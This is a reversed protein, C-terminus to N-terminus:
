PRLVLTQDEPKKDRLQKNRFLVERLIKAVDEVLENVRRLVAEWENDRIEWTRYRYRADGLYTLSEGWYRDLHEGLLRVNDDRYFPHIHTSEESDSPLLVEVTAVPLGDVAYRIRILAEPATVGSNLNYVQM